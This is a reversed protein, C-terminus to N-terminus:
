NDQYDAHEQRSDGDCIIHIIHPRRHLAIDSCEASSIGTGQRSEVRRCAGTKARATSQQRCEIRKFFAPVAELCCNISTDPEIDLGAM